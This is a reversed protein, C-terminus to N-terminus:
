QSWSLIHGELAEEFEQTLKVRKIFALEKEKGVRFSAADLKTKLCETKM